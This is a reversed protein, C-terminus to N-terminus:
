WSHFFEQFWTLCLKPWFQVIAEIFFFLFSFPLAVVSFLTYSVAFVVVGYNRKEYRTKLVLHKSSFHKTNQTYSSHENIPMQFVLTGLLKGSMVIPDWLQPILNVFVPSHHIISYYTRLEKKHPTEESVSTLIERWVSQKETKRRMIKLIELSCCKNADVLISRNRYYSHFCSVHFIAYQM